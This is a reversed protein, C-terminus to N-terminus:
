ATAGGAVNFMGPEDTELSLTARRHHEHATPAAVGPM